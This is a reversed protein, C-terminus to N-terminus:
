KWARAAFARFSAPVYSQLEPYSYNIPHELYGDRLFVKIVGSKANGIKEIQEKSIKYTKETLATAPIVAYKSYHGKDISHHGFDQKDYPELEFLEGDILFIIPQDRKFGTAMSYVVRLEAFDRKSSKILGLEPATADSVLAPSMSIVSEQSIQMQSHQIVGRTSLASDLTQCGALISSALLLLLKM